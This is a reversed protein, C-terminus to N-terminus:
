LELFHKDSHSLREYGDETIIVLDEIRVGADGPIYAGPEITATMHPELIEDEKLPSLSPAEHIELGVGHGLGHSFYDGLGQEKLINRAVEDIEKGKKYPTIAKLAAEQAMLVSDYIHRHSDKIKDVAFTRTMDAHYGDVVAGFDITVLDGKQITKQSAAGHPMASRHGSAVIFDFSKGEAGAVRIYRELELAVEVEKMGPKIVNLIHSFAEDTLAAAQRLKEAEHPQKYLREKAVLGPPSPM